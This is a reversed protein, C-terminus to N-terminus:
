SEAKKPLSVGSVNVDVSQVTLGTMEEVQKKVNQQVKWAVEPIRVGFDVVIDMTIRVHERGMEVTVGRTAGARGLLEAFGERLGGHLGHVGEVQMASMGAATAVVEDSIKIVGLEQVEELM